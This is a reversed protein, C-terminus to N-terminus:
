EMNDSESNILPGNVSSFTGVKQSEKVLFHTYFGIKFDRACFCTLIRMELNM